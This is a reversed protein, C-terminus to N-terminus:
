NMANHTDNYLKYVKPGLIAMAGAAAIVLVALILGYETLGQGGEDLLGNNLTSM